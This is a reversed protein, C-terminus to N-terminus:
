RTIQLNAVFASSPDAFGLSRCSAVTLPAFHTHSACFFMRERTQSASTEILKASHNAPILSVTSVITVSSSRRKTVVVNSRPPLGRNRYPDPGHPLGGLV